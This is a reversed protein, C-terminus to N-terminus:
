CTQCCPNSDPTGTRTNQTNCLQTYICIETEPCNPTQPCGTTPPCDPTFVCPNSDGGYVQQLARRNLHAITKKNLQLKSRFHRSKM